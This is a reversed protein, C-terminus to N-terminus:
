PFFENRLLTGPLCLLYQVIALCNQFPIGSDKFHKFVEIWRQETSSKMEEWRKLVDNNVYNAVYSVEDFLSEEKLTVAATPMHGMFYDRNIQEVLKTLENRITLPMYDNELRNTYKNKLDVFLHSVETFRPKDGELM